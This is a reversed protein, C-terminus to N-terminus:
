REIGRDADRSPEKPEVVNSKGQLIDNMTLNGDFAPPSPTPDWEPQGFIAARAQELLQEAAIEEPPKKRPVDEYSGGESPSYRFIRDHPANSRDEALMVNIM